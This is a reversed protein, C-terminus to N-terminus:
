RKVYDWLRVITTREYSWDYPHPRWSPLLRSTATSKQNSGTHGYEHVAERQSRSTPRRRGSTTRWWTM